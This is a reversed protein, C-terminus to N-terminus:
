YKENKVILNCGFKAINRYKLISKRATTTSKM